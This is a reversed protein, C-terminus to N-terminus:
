LLGDGTPPMTKIINKLSKLNGVSCVCVSVSIIILLYGRTSEELLLSSYLSFNLIISKDVSIRSFELSIKNFVQNGASKLTKPSKINRFKM